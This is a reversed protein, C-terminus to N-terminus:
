QRSGQRRCASRMWKIKTMLCCWEAVFCCCCRKVGVLFSVVQEEGGGEVVGGFEYSGEEVVGGLFVFRAERDFELSSPLVSEKLELLM